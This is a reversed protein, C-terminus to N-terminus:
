VEPGSGGVQQGMLAEPVRAHWAQAERGETLVAGPMLCGAGPIVRSLAPARTGM